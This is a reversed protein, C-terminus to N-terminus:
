GTRSLTFGRVSYRDLERAAIFCLLIATRHLAKDPLEKFIAIYIMQKVGGPTVHLEKDKKKLLFESGLVRELNDVSYREVPLGSCKPPAELSFTAM